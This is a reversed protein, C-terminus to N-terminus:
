SVLVVQKPNDYDSLSSGPFSLDVETFFHAECHDVYAVQVSHTATWETDNDYSEPTLVEMDQPLIQLRQILQAVTLSM